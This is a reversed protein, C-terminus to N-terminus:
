TSRQTHRRTHLWAAPTTVKHSHLQGWVVRTRACHALHPRTLLRALRGFWRTCFTDFTHHAHLTRRSHADASIAIRALYFTLTCRLALPVHFSGSTFSLCRPLHPLGYGHLVTFYAPLLPSRLRVSGSRPPSAFRLFSHTHFATHVNCGVLVATFWFPLRCSAYCSSYRVRTHTPLFGYPLSHLYVFSLVLTYHFHLRTFRLLTHRGCYVHSTFDTFWSSLYSIIGHTLYHQPFPAFADLSRITFAILCGAAIFLLLTCFAAHTHLAVYVLSGSVCRTRSSFTTRSMLSVVRLLFALRHLAFRARASHVRVAFRVFWLYHFRVTVAIRLYCCLTAVLLPGSGHAFRFRAVSRCVYVLCSHLTFRLHPFSGSGCVCRLSFTFAFWCFLGYFVSSFWGHSRVFPTYDTLSLFVCGFTVLWAHTAHAHLPASFFSGSSFRPTWSFSGVHAAYVYCLTSHLRTVVRL